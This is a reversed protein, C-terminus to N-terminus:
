QNNKLIIDALCVAVEQPEERPRWALVYSVETSAVAYGRAQLDDIQQRMTRSLSAVYEGKESILYGNSYGLRDGSRLSLVTEKRERFYDLWVDRLGLSVAINTQPLTPREHLYLNHRARTIGVYTTRLEEPETTDPRDVFLHVTDFERGKAKHITGVFVNGDAALFDEVDSELLFQRLDSRYYYKNAQEYKDWFCRMVSLMRSSAYRECTREKATQWQEKAITSGDGVQKIFYRVEALNIFRFGTGSQALTAHIGQQELLYAVQLAQENTRTLIATTGKLQTNLTALQSNAYVNM